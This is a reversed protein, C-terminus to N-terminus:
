STVIQVSLDRCTKFHHVQLTQKLLALIASLQNKILATAENTKPINTILDKVTNFGNSMENKVLTIYESTEQVIEFLTRTDKQSQDLSSKLTHIIALDDMVTDTGRSVGAKIEESIRAM